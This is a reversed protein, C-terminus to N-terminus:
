YGQNQSLNFDKQIEEEPIPYLVDTAEWLSKKPALVSDAKEYRKLDLWRHGWETFLEKRREKLILDLLVTQNIDPQGAPILAANARRRILNLDEVAGSLNEQRARAESRILYQEALRLVMSYEYPEGTAYKVKYKFAFYYRDSDTDFHGSWQKLRNDNPEFQAILDDTLAVTKLYDDMIFIGGENTSSQNSGDASPSIQWIAEESNALFVADLDPLLSFTGSEIVRNSWYEAQEWMGRYLQVRAMLAMATFQNARLREGKEYDASLLGTADDLDQTIQDYIEVDPTRSATANQSYNTVLILPVDGYLNVLYFYTFARLFLAEGMLKDKLEATINESHELGEVVANTMYIINYASAWIALNGENDVFIENEQFELLTANSNTTQLNDASLAAQVTVSSQYGSSFATSILENYIGQVASEATKDNSFVSESVIRDDPVPVEVFEECSAPFFWLALSTPIILYKIRKM